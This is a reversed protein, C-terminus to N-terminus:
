VKRKVFSILSKTHLSRVRTLDCNFDGGCVIIDVEEADAANAIESLADSFITDNAHDYETDCPMYITCLLMTFSNINVKIMCLRKSDRSVPLVTYTLSRRWM